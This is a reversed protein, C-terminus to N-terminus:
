KTEAAQSILRWRAYRTSGSKKFLKRNQGRWLINGLTTSNLESNFKRYYAERIDKSGLPRNAEKLIAIVADPTSGESDTGAGGRGNDSLRQSVTELKLLRQRHAQVRSDVYVRFAELEDKDELLEMLDRILASKNMM